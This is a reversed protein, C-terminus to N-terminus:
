IMLHNPYIDWVHAKWREPLIILFIFFIFNFQSILSLLFFIQSILISINFCPQLYFQFVICKSYACFRLFSWGNLDVCSCVVSFYGLPQTAASLHLSTTPEIWITLFNIGGQHHTPFPNPIIYIIRVCSWFFLLLCLYQELLQFGWFVDLLTKFLYLWSCKWTWAFVCTDAFFIGSGTILVVALLCLLNIYGSHPLDSHVHVPSTALCLVGGSSCRRSTPPGSWPGMFWRMQEQLSLSDVGLYPSCLNPVLPCPFVHGSPVM